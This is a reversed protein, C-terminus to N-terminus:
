SKTTQVAEAQLQEASSFLASLRGESLGQRLGTWRFAFAEVAAKQSVFHDVQKKAGESAKLLEDSYKVLVAQHVSASRLESLERAVVYDLINILDIEEDLLEQILLALSLAIAHANRKTVSRLEQLVPGFRKNFLEQQAEMTLAQEALHVPADNFARFEVLQCRSVVTKLVDSATLAFLLFVVKSKPEEMTKLLANAAPRHFCEESADEIVVARHYLSTKALDESLERANEVKIKGSKTQEGSLIQWAQPHENHVIWRCNPCWSIENEQCLLCFGEESKKRESCNLACTLELSMQMKDRLARGTFLYAHSLRSNSFQAEILKSALPQRKRLAESFIRAM